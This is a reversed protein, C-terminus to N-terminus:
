KKVKLPKVTEIVQRLMAVFEDVEDPDIAWRTTEIVLYSDKAETAGNETKVVIANVMESTPGCTDMEQSFTFVASEIVPKDNM